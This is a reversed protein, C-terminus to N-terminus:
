KSGKATANRASRSNNNAEAVKVFDRILQKRGAKTDCTSALQKIAKPIKIAKADYSM